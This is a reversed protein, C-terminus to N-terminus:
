MIDAGRGREEAIREIELELGQLEVVKEFTSDIAVFWENNGQLKSRKLQLGAERLTTHLRKRSWRAARDQSDLDALVLNTWGRNEPATRAVALCAEMAWALDGTKHIIEISDQREYALSLIEKTAGDRGEPVMAVLPYWCQWVSMGLDPAIDRKRLKRRPLDFKAFRWALLRERMVAAEVYFEDPLQADEEFQAPLKDLRVHGTVCRRAIGEEDFARKSTIVKPCFPAMLDMEEFQRGSCRPVAVSRQNGANLLNMVIQGDDTNGPNFEEIVMTCIPGFLEPLRYLHTSRVDTIYLARYCLSRMIKCYQSKGYGARGTLQMYPVADFMADEYRYTLLIFAVSSTIFEPANFWYKTFLAHLDDFLQETTEYPRIGSPLTIVGSSFMKDNQMPRVIPPREEHEPRPYGPGELTTPHLTFESLEHVVLSGTRESAGRDFHGFMTHGGLKANHPQTPDKPKWLLVVPDGDATLFEDSAKVAPGREDEREKIHKKADRKGLKEASRLLELTEPLELGREVTDIWESFDAGALPITAIKVSRIGLMALQSGLDLAGARGPDDNDFLVIVSPRSALVSQASADLSTIGGVCIAGQIGISLGTLWDREGEFLVLDGAHDLNGLMARREGAPALAKVPVGQENPPRKFKDFFWRVGNSFALCPYAEGDDAVYDDILTTHQELIEATIRAGGQRAFVELVDETTEYTRPM